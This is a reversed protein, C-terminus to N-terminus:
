RHPDHFGVGAGVIHPDFVRSIQRDVSALIDFREPLM